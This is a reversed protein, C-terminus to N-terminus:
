LIKFKNLFDDLNCREQYESEEEGHEECHYIMIPVRAKITDVETDDLSDDILLENARLVRTRSELSIPSIPRIYSGNKFKIIGARSIGSIGYCENNAIHERASSLFDKLRSHNGLAVVAQYNPYEVCRGMLGALSNASLVEM